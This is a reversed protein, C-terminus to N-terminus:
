HADRFVKKPNAKWAKYATIDKAQQQAQAISLKVKNGQKFLVVPTSQNIGAVVANLLLVLDGNNQINGLEATCTQYAKVILNDIETTVDTPLGAGDVAALAKQLYTYDLNTSLVFDSIAAGVNSVYPQIAPYKVYLLDLGGAVVETLLPALITATPSAPTPTPTTCSPCVMLVLSMLAAVLYKYLRKMRM